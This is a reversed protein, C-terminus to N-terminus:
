PGFRYGEACVGKGYEPPGLNEIPVVPGLVMVPRGQGQRPSCLNSSRRSSRVRCLVPGRDARRVSPPGRSNSCPGSAVRGTSAIWPRISLLVHRYNTGEARPTGKRAVFRRSVVDPHVVRVFHPSKEFLRPCPPTHVHSVWFTPRGAFEKSLLPVVRRVTRESPARPRHLVAILARSSSNVALPARPRGLVAILRSPVAGDRLPKSRRVASRHIPWREESGSGIRDSERVACVPEPRQPLEQARSEASSNGRIARGRRQFLGAGSPSPM